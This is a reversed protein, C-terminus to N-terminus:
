PWYRWAAVAATFISLYSIWFVGAPTFHRSTAQKM